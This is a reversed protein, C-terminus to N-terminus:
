KKSAGIFIETGDVDIKQTFYIANEDTSVFLTHGDGWNKVPLVKKDSKLLEKATTAAMTLLYNKKCM